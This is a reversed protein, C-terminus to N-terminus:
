NLLGVKIEKIRSNLTKLTNETPSSLCDANEANEANEGPAPQIAFHPFDLRGAKDQGAKPALSETKGLHRYPLALLDPM